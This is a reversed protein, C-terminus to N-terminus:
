LGGDFTQAEIKVYAHSFPPKILISSSRMQLHGVVSHRDRRVLLQYKEVNQSFIAKQALFPM